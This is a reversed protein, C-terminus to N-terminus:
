SLSPPPKSKKFFNLWVSMVLGFVIGGVALADVLKANWDMGTLTDFLYKLYSNPLDTKGMKHLVDWHLDTLPCYGFGYWFGLITWSGLTLFVVALHVRRLPKWIWGALNFFIVLLHFTFFFFHWFRLM